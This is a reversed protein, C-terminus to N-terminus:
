AFVVAVIEAIREAVLRDVESVPLQVVIFGTGCCGECPRSRTEWPSGIDDVYGPSIVEGNECDDNPCVAEVSVSGESM